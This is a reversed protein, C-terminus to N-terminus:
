NKLFDEGKYILPYDGTRTFYKVDNQVVKEDIGIDGFVNANFLLVELDREEINEALTKITNPLIYDDSDLYYIYKGRAQKLGKNRSYSLGHNSQNLVIFRNDKVAYKELINLSNDTSGDNVCIVEINKYTQKLISDLCEELYKEVNYVPIIISVLVDCDM